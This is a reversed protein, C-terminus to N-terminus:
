SRRLGRGAAGFLAGAGGALVSLVVPWFVVMTAGWWPWGWAAIMGWLAMPALIIDLRLVFLTGIFLLAGFWPWHWVDLALGFVAAINLISLALYALIMMGGATNGAANGFKSM